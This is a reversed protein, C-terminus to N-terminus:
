QANNSPPPPPPKQAPPPPPPKVKPPPPKIGNMAPAPPKSGNGVMSVRQPPPPPPKTGSLPPPPPKTGTPGSPRKNPLGPPPPPPPRKHGSLTQKARTPSLKGNPPLPPPPPRISSARKKGSTPSRSSPALKKKAQPSPSTARTTAPLSWNFTGAATTQDEREEAVRDRETRLAQFFDEISICGDNKLCYQVAAAANPASTLEKKSIRKHQMIPADADPKIGISSSQRQHKSPAM